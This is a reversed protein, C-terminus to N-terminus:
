RPHDGVSMTRPRGGTDQEFEFILLEELLMRRCEDLEESGM